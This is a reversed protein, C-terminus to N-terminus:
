PLACHTGPGHFCGTRGPGRTFQRDAGPCLPERLCGPVPWGCPYTRSWSYEHARSRNLRSAGSSQYSPAAKYARGLEVRREDLQTLLSRSNKAVTLADRYERRFLPVAASDDDIMAFGHLWLDVHERTKLPWARSNVFSSSGIPPATVAPPPPACAAILVLLVCLRLIRVPYM